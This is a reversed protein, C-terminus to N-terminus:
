SQTKDNSTKSYYRKCGYSYRNVCSASKTVFCTITRIYTVKM